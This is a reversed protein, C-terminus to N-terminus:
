EWALIYANKIDEPTAGRSLNITKSVANDTHKQFVAQHRIHWRPEIELATKFLKKIRDPVTKEEPPIRGSRAIEQILGESYFGEKEAM